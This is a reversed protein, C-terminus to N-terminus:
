SEDRLSGLIDIINNSMMIVYDHEISSNDNDPILAWYQKYDHEDVNGSWLEANSRRQIDSWVRETKDGLIERAHEIFTNRDSMMEDYLSQLPGKNKVAWDIYGQWYDQERPHRKINGNAITRAADLWREDKLGHYRAENILYDIFTPKM